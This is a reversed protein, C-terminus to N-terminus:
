FKVDVAMYYEEPGQGKMKKLLLLSIGKAM